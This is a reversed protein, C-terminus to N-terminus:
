GPVLVLKGFAERGALMAHARSAEVVPLTAHIVPRFAGEAVLRVVELVARTPASYSGLLAAQRRFLDILDLAVREGGHAGCTVVRGGRRCLSLAASWVAGGVHEFVCDVGAGGTLRRVEEAWDPRGHDVVAEVGLARLRERKAPSGATAVVRAGGYRAIQVAASGVGSGAATVLVTEGPQLRAREILMFWATSFAVQTAAAAEFGLAPPLPLLNRAPAVVCEAYGGPRDLGFTERRRCLNDEGALCAACQGCTVARIVLVRAGPGVGQVGAGVAAVEGATEIGLVHPFRVPFGSVGARLDLDLHNVGCARVRVVAEGPGPVPDPLDHPELVDPGGFRAFAVAKM